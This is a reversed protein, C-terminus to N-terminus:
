SIDKGNNTLREYVCFNDDSYLQLYNEDRSLFINLKANKYIIVHTIGYEEFKDEYYTGINSINLFDSFIYTGENFEPTYLDARSDIFVPIGKFLLYSGYNYENFIRMNELDLNELIYESAEVPYSSSNVITDDMKPKVIQFSIFVVVVSIVVKGFTTTIIKEIKPCLQKDYKNLFAEIMRVLIVNGILIFMSTQRRSMFALFLLGGLFFLDKLQIKTDTFMLVALFIVIVAMFELNNYLTLPLHENINQTTNGQMTKSLYTYPTTGLPTLFGSLICIILIGILWLVAPNKQFTIKYANKNNKERRIDYKQIKEELRQINEQLIETEDQSIQISAVRKQLSKKRINLICKPINVLCCVIYEGIYPLFLVFYFPWVAVHLNAIAISGLVLYIAYRKKRTQLFKEISYIELIFLIFTVLQARAAIYDTLLYMAGLTIIFSIFKNKNLKVNVMYICVGLLCSFFVTSLYILNFGGIDYIKYMLVDYAWHPFTYSLGEHWSFPDMGTIGNEMIYEGIKITYYTDNQLTVPTVAFCFVLILIIAITHFKNSISDM